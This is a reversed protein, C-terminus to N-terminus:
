LSKVNKLAQEVENKDYTNNGIKITEKVGTKIGTIEEFIETNFHPLKLFRDHESPNEKWWIQCAEKFPLTKLYGGMTEWGEVESKEKESMDEKNIWRNLPIDAYVNYKQNFEEFTIDTQINFIRVCPTDTNFYGSNWDGSNWDGSNRYGSNWDGSNRYGSNRNGSNWDGSNWDGSNWDGSNWDGSNRNGTNESGTNNKKDTMFIKKIINMINKNGLRKYLSREHPYGVKSSERSEEALPENIWV